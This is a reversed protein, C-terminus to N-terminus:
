EEHWWVDPQFGIWDGYMPLRDSPYRLEKKHAIRSPGSMWIPIVYRGATLIRDLAKTAARFDDQSKSTLLHNIMAEAAPSNMGMWNRTGLDTVGASGWYLMQENGPSLSMGRRYFAMDFDYTTTREKYQAKDISTVHPSIGLRKLSQVYIDVISQVESSGQKLVIEFSFPKGDANKMVGDQVTWGADELLAISRFLM